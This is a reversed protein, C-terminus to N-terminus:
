RDELLALRQEPAFGYLLYGFGQDAQPAGTSVVAPGPAVASSVRAGLGAVFADCNIAKAKLDPLDFGKWADIQKVLPAFNRQMQDVALSIVVGLELKKSHKRMVPNFDGFFALNDINIGPFPM